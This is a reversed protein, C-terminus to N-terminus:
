YEQNIKLLKGGFKKVLYETHIPNSVCAVKTLADALWASPASISWVGAKLKERNASLIRGQFRIDDFENVHSTALATERFHGILKLENSLERRFVPICIDGFIRLDGGANVWASKLGVEKLKKVALDVAYGKAIGDLSILIPRKLRATQGFIQLDDAFGISIIEKKSFHNPLIAQEVLVGGMSFNFLGNSLVTIRRALKLIVATLPNIKIDENVSNNLRSLDSEPDHFSLLNHVKEIILFAEDVGMDFFKETGLSGIEVYTGLLPKM